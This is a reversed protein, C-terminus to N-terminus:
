NKFCSCSPEPAWAKLYKVMSGGRSVELKKEKSKKKLQLYINDVLKRSHFIFIEIERVCRIKGGREWGPEESPSTVGDDEWTLQIVKTLNM